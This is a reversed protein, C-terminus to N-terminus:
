VKEDAPVSAKIYRVLFVYPTSVTLNWGLKGLIAKEMVLIQEKAYAKDSICVFDNVQM